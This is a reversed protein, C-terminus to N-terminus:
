CLILHVSYLVLPILSLSIAASGATRDEWNWSNSGCSVVEVSNSRCQNPDCAPACSYEAMALDTDLTLEWNWLKESNYYTTDECCNCNCNCDKQSRDTNRAHFASSLGLVISTSGKIFGAAVIDTVSNTKGDSLRATIFTAKDPTGTTTDIRAVVMVKAGGGGGPSYDTYSSLWGYVAFRRFDESADGQTGTSSFFGYLTNSDTDLLVGHGTSDDGTVEYDTRCWQTVGNLFKVMVPDKNQGLQRGTSQTSVVAQGIRHVYISVDM